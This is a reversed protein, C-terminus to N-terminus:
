WVDSIINFAKHCNSQLKTGAAASGIDIAAFRELDMGPARTPRGVQQLAEDTLMWFSATATRVSPGGGWGARLMKTDM